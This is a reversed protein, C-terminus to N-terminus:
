PQDRPEVLLLNSSRLCLFGVDDDFVCSRVTRRCTVWELCSRAPDASLLALRSDYSLPNRCFAFGVVPARRVLAPPGPSNSPDIKKTRVRPLDQLLRREQRAAKAAALDEKNAADNAGQRQLRVGQGTEQVCGADGKPPDNKQLDAAYKSYTKAEKQITAWDPSESKLATKLVSSASKKGKHLTDMIKQSPPRPNTTASRSVVGAIVLLCM